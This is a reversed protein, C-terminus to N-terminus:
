NKLSYSRKIFNFHIGASSMAEKLEAADYTPSVFIKVLGSSVLQSQIFGKKTHLFSLTKQQDAETICSKIEVIFFKVIGDLLFKGSRKNTGIRSQVEPPMNNFDLSIIASASAKEAAEEPSLPKVVPSPQPTNQPKNASARATAKKRSADTVTQKKFSTGTTKTAPKKDKLEQASLGNGLVILLLVLLSRKM